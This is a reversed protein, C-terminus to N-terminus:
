DDIVLVDPLGLQLQRWLDIAENTTVAHALGVQEIRHVIQRKAMRTEGIHVADDDGVVLVEKYQLAVVHGVVTRRLMDIRAHLAAAMLMELTVVLFVLLERLM